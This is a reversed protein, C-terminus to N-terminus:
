VILLVLYAIAALSDRVEQLHASCQWLGVTTRLLPGPRVHATVRAAPLRDEPLAGDGEQGDM